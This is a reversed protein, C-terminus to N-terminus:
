VQMRVPRTEPPANVRLASRRTGGEIARARPCAPGGRCRHLRQGWGHICGRRLDPRIVPPLMGGMNLISFTRTTPAVPPVPIRTTLASRRRSSWTRARMRSAALSGRNDASPTSITTPSAVDATSKSRATAPTCATMLASPLRAIPSAAFASATSCVAIAWNACAAALAPTCCNTNHEEIPASVGSKTGGSAVTNRALRRPSSANISLPTGYAM